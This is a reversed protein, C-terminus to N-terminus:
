ACAFPSCFELSPTWVLTTYSTIDHVSIPEEGLFWSRGGPIIKVCQKRTLDRGGFTQLYRQLSRVNM